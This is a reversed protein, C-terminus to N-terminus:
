GGGLPRIIKVQDKEQLKYHTYEKMLLQKGNVFVAVYHTYNIHKLLMDITYDPPICLVEKNVQIEM